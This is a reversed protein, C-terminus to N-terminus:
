NQPKKKRSFAIYLSISPQKRPFIFRPIFFICVTHTPIHKNTELVDPQNHTKHNVNQSVEAILHTNIKHAYVNSLISLFFLTVSILNQSSQWRIKKQTIFIHFFYLLLKLVTFYISPTMEKTCM